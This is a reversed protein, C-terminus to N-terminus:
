FNVVDDLAKDTEKSMFNSQYQMTTTISSHRYLRQLMQVPIRDGAINGFSHRAIHMTLKKDLGSKVAIERLYKNFKKTATNTKAYVDRHNKFDAKKLEPFIFDKSDQRDKEYLALIPVLKYSMKLSVLKSNKNMRYHIRGDFIDSWRIKLVDGVRIGALYFSFLWVNLAHKEQKSLYELNEIKQIEKVTLGIKETEPFKIRIKDVGFPYNGQDVIGLKIAMNFLTRIVVLNNVISRESLNKETKLYSKFRRLFAEDIEQFTLQKSKNFNLVHNVRVKDTFFRTLKNNKELENLYTDSVESFTMIYSNSDLKKKIQISSIDENEFQLGILKKNAEALKSSLLTNLLEANPHSKRVLRRREDWHKADIYHGLYM